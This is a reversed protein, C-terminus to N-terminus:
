SLLSVGVSPTVMFGSDHYQDMQVPLGMGLANLELRELGVRILGGTLGTLPTIYHSYPMVSLKRFRLM